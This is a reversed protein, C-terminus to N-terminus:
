LYLITNKKIHYQYRVNLINCRRSAGLCKVFFESNQCKDSDMAPDTAYLDLGSYFPSFWGAVIVVDPKNEMATYM